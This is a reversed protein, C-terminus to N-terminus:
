GRANKWGCGCGCCGGIAAGCWHVVVFMKVVVVVAERTAVVHGNPVGARCAVIGPGIVLGSARALVDGLKFGKSVKGGFSADVFGDHRDIWLGVLSSLNPCSYIYVCYGNIWSIITIRCKLQGGGREWM